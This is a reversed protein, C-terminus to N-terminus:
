TINLNNDHVHRDIYVSNSVPCLLFSLTSTIMTRQNHRIALSVEFQTDCPIFAGCQVSVNSFVSLHCLFVVARHLGKAPMTPTWNDGWFSDDSWISVLNKQSIMLTSVTGDQHTHDSGSYRRDWGCSLRPVIQHPHLDNRSIWLSMISYRKSSPIDKTHRWHMELYM